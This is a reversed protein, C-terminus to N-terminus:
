DVRSTTPSKELLVIKDRSRPRLLPKILEYLGCLLSNVPGVEIRHIRDPYAKQLLLGMGTLAAFPPPIYSLNSTDVKVVLSEPLREPSSAIRELAHEIVLVHYQLGAEVGTTWWDLKSAKALLVIRGDGDLDKQVVFAGSACVEILQPSPTFVEEERHRSGINSPEMVGSPVFVTGGKTEECGFANRLAGVHFERRWELAQRIKEDRAYEFTRDPVNLVLALYEDSYLTDIEPFDNRLAHRLSLIQDPLSVTNPHNANNHHHTNEERGTEM